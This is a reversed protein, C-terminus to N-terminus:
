MHHSAGSDVLFDVHDTWSPKVSAAAASASGEDGDDCHLVTLLPQGNTGPDGKGHQRNRNRNRNRNGNGSERNIHNHGANGGVNGGNNRRQSNRPPYTTRQNRGSASGSMSKLLVRPHADFHVARGPQLAAAATVSLRAEADTVSLPSNSKTILRSM